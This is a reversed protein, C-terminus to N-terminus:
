KITRPKWTGKRFYMNNFKDSHFVLFFSWASRYVTPDSTLVHIAPQEMNISLRVSKYISPDTTKITGKYTKLIREKDTVYFYLSDNEKIEFRFNDYQWNAQKGKFYSTDIIYHGYYDEKSLIKDATLSGITYILAIFGILGLWLYSLIKGYVKKQSIVWVLLLLITLPFIIFVLLLTFGFGM